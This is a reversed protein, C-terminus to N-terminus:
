HLQFWDHFQVCKLCGVLSYNRSKSILKQAVIQRWVWGVKSIQRGDEKFENKEIWYVMWYVPRKLKMKHYYQLLMQASQIKALLNQSITM